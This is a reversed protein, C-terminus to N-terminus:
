NTPRLAPPGSALTVTGTDFDINWTGTESCAWEGAHGAIRWEKGKNGNVKFSVRMSGGICSPPNYVLEVRNNIGPERSPTVDVYQFTNAGYSNITKGNIRMTVSTANGVELQFGIENPKTTRTCGVDTITAEDVVELKTGDLTRLVMSLPAATSTDVAEMFDQIQGSKLANLAVDDNGGAAEIRIESENLVARHRENVTADGSYAGYAGSVAASLEEASSVKTSTVTMYVVRGYTVADILVPPNGAGMRGLDVLEEVEDVMTEPNFYDGPTQVASQDANITFMPQLLRVMISHKQTGRQQEFTSKFEGQLGPSDYRLSIGMSLVAEEYSSVERQVFRINAPVVSLGTRRADAAQMLQAVGQQLSAPTPDDIVVTPSESALNVVLPLPARDLPVVRLDGDQIPDGEVILGPLVTGSFPFTAFEDFVGPRFTRPQLAPACQVLVRDPTEFSDEAVERTDEFPPIQRATWPGFSQLIRDVEADLQLAPDPDATPLSTATGDGGPTVTARDAVDSDGSAGVDTAGSPVSLTCATSILIAAPFLSIAKTFSFRM